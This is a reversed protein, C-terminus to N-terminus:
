FLCQLGRSSQIVKETIPPGASKALGQIELRKLSPIDINRIFDSTKCGHGEPAYYDTCRLFELRRMHKMVLGILAWTDDTM